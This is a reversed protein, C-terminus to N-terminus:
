AAPPPDDKEKYINTVSIDQTYNGFGRGFLTVGSGQSSVRLRIRKEPTIDLQDITVDSLRNNGDIFAGKRNITLLKIKGSQIRPSNWWAPSHLSRYNDGDLPIIWSGVAIQNISFLVGQSRDKPMAHPLHSALELSIQLEVLKGGEPLYNPIPYEIFGASFWILGAGTREPADFYRPNDEKGILASPSALGCPATITFESYSGVPVESHLRKHRTPSEFMEILLRSEKLSCLKQMGRSGDAGRIDLIGCEDLLKIQATLTSGPIGLRESLENMNLERHKILLSIIKVRVESSLAKFLPIGEDITEIRIM